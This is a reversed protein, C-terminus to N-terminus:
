TSKSIKSQSLIYTPPLGPGPIRNHPGQAIILGLPYSPKKIVQVCALSANLRAKSSHGKEGRDVGGDTSSPIEADLDSTPPPSSSHAVAPVLRPILGKPTDKCMLLSSLFSGCLSTISVLARTKGTLAVNGIRIHVYQLPPNSHWAM